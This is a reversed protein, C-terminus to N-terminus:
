WSAKALTEFNPIRYKEFKGYSKYYSFSLRQGNITGLESKDDVEKENISKGTLKKRCTLMNPVQDKPIYFYNLEDEVPNYIVVRIAGTKHDLNKLSCRSIPKKRDKIKYTILTGTKCESGDSFDCGKVDEITYGGVEAMTLEVLKPINYIEAHKLVLEKQKKSLSSFISSYKFCIDKLIKRNKDLNEM